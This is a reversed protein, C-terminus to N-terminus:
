LTSILPVTAIRLYRLVGDYNVLPALEPFSTGFIGGGDTSWAMPWLLGDAMAAKDMPIMLAIYM